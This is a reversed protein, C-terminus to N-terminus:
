YNEILLDSLENEYHEIHKEAIMEENPNLNDSTLQVDYCEYETYPHKVERGLRESYDCEYRKEVVGQIQIDKDIGPINITIEITKKM